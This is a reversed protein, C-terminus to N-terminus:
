PLTLTVPARDAADALLSPRSMFVPMAAGFNHEAHGLAKRRRMHRDAKWAHPNRRRYDLVALDAWREDSSIVRGAVIARNLEIALRGIAYITAVPDLARVDLNDGVAMAPLEIKAVRTWGAQAAASLAARQQALRDNVLGGNHVFANRAERLVEFVQLWPGSVDAGRREFWEHKSPLGGYPSPPTSGTAAAVWAATRDVYEEYAPQCSIFAAEFLFEASDNLYSEATRLRYGFRSGVVHAPYLEGLRRERLHPRLTSVEHMTLRRSFELANISQNVATRQDWFEDFAHDFFVYPPDSPHKRPTLPV